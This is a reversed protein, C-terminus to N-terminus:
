CDESHKSIQKKLIFFRPDKKGEYGKMIQQQDKFNVSYLSPTLTNM